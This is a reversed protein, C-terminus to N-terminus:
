TSGDSKDGGDWYGRISDISMVDEMEPCSVSSIETELKSKAQSYDWAGSAIPNYKGAGSDAKLDHKHDELQILALLNMGREIIARNGGHFHNGLQMRKLLDEDDNITHRFVDKCNPNKAMMYTGLHALATREMNECEANFPISAILKAVMNETLDKKEDSGLRFTQATMETLEGWKSESLM